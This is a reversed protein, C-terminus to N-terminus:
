GHIIEFGADMLLSIAQKTDEDMEPPIIAAPPPEPAPPQEPPTTAAPPTTRYPRWDQFKLVDRLDFKGKAMVEVSISYKRAYETAQEMLLTSVTACLGMARLDAAKQEWETYADLDPYLTVTRGRLPHLNEATFKFGNKGGTALCVAGPYFVSCYIATAESEFIKVPKDNGSLLHEGFLCYQLNAQENKLVKKGIALVRSQPEKIRGGTTPDYDMLKLQRLRWKHDIYPFLVWGPYKGANGLYYREILECAIEDTFACAGRSQDTLWQVFHNSDYLGSYQKLSQELVQM